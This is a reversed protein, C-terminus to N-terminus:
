RYLAKIEAWSTEEIPITCQLFAGWLLEAFCVTDDFASGPCVATAPTGFYYSHIARTTPYCTGCAVPGTPGAAPHDTTVALPDAAPGPGLTYTIVFSNPVTVNAFTLTNWGSVPLLSQSALSPGTPCGSPDAAWVDVSGTFGYGMPSGTTVYMEAGTLQSAANGPCCSEFQVGFRDTANWGTWVWVWGTCTNHYAIDCTTPGSLWQREGRDDLFRATTKELGYGANAFCSFAVSIGPVLLPRWSKM